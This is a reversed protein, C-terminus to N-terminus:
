NEKPESQETKQLFPSLEAQLYDGRKQMLTLLQQQEEASFHLFAAEEAQLLPEVVRRAYRLGAETFMVTKNKRNTVQPQLFLVGQEELRKLASNVTQKSYSWLQCIDKQTSEEDQTVAIYLIWFASDSLGHRQAYHHYLDDLLKDAQNLRSLLGSVDPPM